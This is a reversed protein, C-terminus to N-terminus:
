AIGPTFGCQFHTFVRVSSFTTSLAVAIAEMGDDGYATNEINLHGLSVPLARALVQLGADGINNNPVSIAVLNPMPMERLAEAIPAMSASLGCGSLDLNYISSHWPLAGGDTMVGDTNVPHRPHACVIVDHDGHHGNSLRYDGQDGNSMADAGTCARLVAALTQGGSDGIHAYERLTCFDQVRSM